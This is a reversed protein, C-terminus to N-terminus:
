AIALDHVIWVNPEWYEGRDRTRDITLPALGRPFVYTGDAPFAMGTWAEWESVAGTIHLSRAVPKVLRGGRRTHTRIWPDFPQGDERRWTVYREIPALPYREKLSPRVPAILHTLGAEMALGAMADLLRAALGHGQHRPRIEAALACLAMPPGGTAATDLATLLMADIGTGLGAVTGDWPCPASHGEAVVEGAQEDYLAFQFSPFVDFIRAFNRSLVEGHRNYEPWVEASVDATADWVEPRESYRVLTLPTM